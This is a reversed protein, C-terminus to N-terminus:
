QLVGIAAHIARNGATNALLGSAGALATSATSIAQAPISVLTIASAPLRSVIALLGAASTSLIAAAGAGLGVSAFISTLSSASLATAGTGAATATATIGGSGLSGSISNSPVASATGGSSGISSPGPVLSNLGASGTALLLIPIELIALAILTGIATLLGGLVVEAVGFIILGITGIALYILDGWIFFWLPVNSVLLGIDLALAFPIGITTIAVAGVLIAVPPTIVGVYLVNLFYAASANGLSMIPLLLMGIIPGLFVLEAAFIFMGFTIGTIMAVIVGVLIAFLTTLPTIIVGVIGTVFGLAVAIVYGVLIGCVAGVLIAVLVPILEALVVILSIPVTAIPLLAVVLWELVGGLSSLIPQLVEIPPLGFSTSGSLGAVSTISPLASGSTGLSSLASVASTLPVGLSSSITGLASVLGSGVSQAISTLTVM